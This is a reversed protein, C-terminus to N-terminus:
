VRECSSRLASLSKLKYRIASGLVSSAASISCRQHVSRTSIIPTTSPISYRLAPFSRYSAMTSVSPVLCASTWSLSPMTKGSTIADAISVMSLGRSPTTTVAPPARERETAATLQPSLLISSFAFIARLEWLCIGWRMLTSSTVNERDSLSYESKLNYLNAYRFTFPDRENSDDDRDVSYTYEAEALFHHSMRKRLGVTLGRYLSKANSITNTIAGLNPFPGAGCYTVTDSNPSTLDGGPCAQGPLAARPGVNPNLFRTLYVGKSNTFDVFALYDEFIQQDYGFNFTYIRPNHYHKDFVTCSEHISSGVHQAFSNQLRSGPDSRRM